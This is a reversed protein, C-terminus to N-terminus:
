ISRSIHKFFVEIGESYGGRKNITPSDQNICYDCKPFLEDFNFHSEKDSALLLSSALYNETELNRKTIDDEQKTKYFEKRVELSPGLFYIEENYSSNNNYINSEVEILNVKKRWLPINIQEEKYVALKYRGIRIKDGCKVLVPNFILSGKYYTGNSSSLDTLIVEGNEVIICAHVRSVSRDDLIVRNSEKRGIMNPGESLRYLFIEKNDKTAVLYYM